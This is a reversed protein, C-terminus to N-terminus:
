FRGRLIEVTLAPLITASALMLIALAYMLAGDPTM